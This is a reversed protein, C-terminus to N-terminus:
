LVGWNLQGRRLQETAGQPSHGGHQVACPQCLFDQGLLDPLGLPSPSASSPGRGPWGTSERPTRGVPTAQASDRGGEGKVTDSGSCQHTGPVPSPMKTVRSADAGSLNTTGPDRLYLTAPSPGCKPRFSWWSEAGAQAAESEWWWPLLAWIRWSPSFSGSAM